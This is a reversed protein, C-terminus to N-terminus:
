RWLGRIFPSQRQMDAQPTMSYHWNNLSAATDPHDKGLQREYIELAKKAIPIAEEYRGQQYLQIVQQNLSEAEELSQSLASASTLFILFISLLFSTINNRDTNM